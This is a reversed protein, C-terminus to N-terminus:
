TSGPAKSRDQVEIGDVVQILFEAAEDGKVAAGKLLARAASLDRPTGFGNVHMLALQTKAYTSGADSASRMWKFAEEPTVAIKTLRLCELSVRVWEKYSADMTVLRWHLLAKSYHQQQVLKAGSVCMAHTVQANARCPLLLVFFLVATVGAIKSLM